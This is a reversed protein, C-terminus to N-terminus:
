NVYKQKCGVDGILRSQELSEDPHPVDFFTYSPQSVRDSEPATAISYSQHMDIQHQSHQSSKNHKCCKGAIKKLINVMSQKVPYFTILYGFPLVMLGVPISFADLAWVSYLQQRQSSLTYARATFDCLLILMHIIQLIMVYFTQKLLSRADKVSSSIKFYIVSLVFIASIGVANVIIHLIFIVMQIVMGSPKCEGNRPQVWCRPGAIGYGEQKRVLLTVAIVTAIIVPLIIYVIEVTPIYFKSGTRQPRRSPQSKWVTSIVLYLLHLVIEHCLILVVTCTWETFFEKWICAAEKDGFHVINLGMVIEAFLTGLIFYFCLRKLLSSFTKSFILFILIVISIMICFIATTNRLANLSKLEEVTFDTCNFQSGNDDYLKIYM